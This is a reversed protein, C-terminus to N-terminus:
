EASAEEPLKGPAFWSHGMVGGFLLTMVAAIWIDESTLPKLVPEHEVLRLLFPLVFMYPAITVIGTLYHGGPIATRLHRGLVGYALGSLGGGFMAFAVVLAGFAIDATPTDSTVLVYIIAIPAIIWAGKMLMFLVIFLAGYVAPRITDPLDEVWRQLSDVLRFM